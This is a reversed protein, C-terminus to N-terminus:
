EAHVPHKLCRPPLGRAVVLRSPTCNAGAMALVAAFATLCLCNHHGVHQLQKMASHQYASRNHAGQQVGIEGQQGRASIGCISVTLHPV